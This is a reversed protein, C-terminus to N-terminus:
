TNNRVPSQTTPSGLYKKRYVTYLEDFGIELCAKHWGDRQSSLTIDPYSWLKAFKDIYGAGLKFANTNQYEPMIVVQWIHITTPDLRTIIYGVFDKKPNELHKIVLDASNEPTATGSDDMYALHLSAQGNWLSQKITYGSYEGKTRSALEEVYPQILLWSATHYPEFTVGCPMTAIILQPMPKLNEEKKIEMDSTKTTEM